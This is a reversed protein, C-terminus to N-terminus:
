RVEWIRDSNQPLSVEQVVGDKIVQFKADGQRPMLFRRESLPGLVQGVNGPGSTDVVVISASTRNFVTYANTGPDEVSRVGVLNEQSEWGYVVLMKLREHNGPDNIFYLSPQSSMGGELDSTSWRQQNAQIAGRFEGNDNVTFKAAGGPPLVLKLSAKNEGKHEGDVTIVQSSDNRVAFTSVPFGCGLAFASAILIAPVWTSDAIGEFRQRM